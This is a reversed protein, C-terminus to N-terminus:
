STQIDKQLRGPDLHRVLQRVAPSSQKGERLLRGPRRNDVGVAIRAIGLELFNRAFGSFATATSWFAVAYAVFTRRVWVDALRGFPIGFLAYFVAFATGYLFGMQADSLALDGKIEENLIALIQRDVFNFVYVLMLIGLTYCSYRFEGPTQAPKEPPM